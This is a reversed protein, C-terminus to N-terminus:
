NRVTAAVGDEDLEVFRGTVVGDTNDRGAKVLFDGAIGGEGVTGSGVAIRFGRDVVAARVCGGGYTEEVGASQNREKRFCWCRFSVCRELKIQM